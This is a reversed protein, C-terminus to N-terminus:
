RTATTANLPLVKRERIVFVQTQRASAKAAENTEIVASTHNAAVSLPQVLSIVGHKVALVCCGGGVAGLGLSERSSQSSRRWDGSTEHNHSKVPYARLSSADGHGTRLAVSRM